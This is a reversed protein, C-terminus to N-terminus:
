DDAARFGAGGVLTAQMTKLRLYPSVAATLQLLDHVM